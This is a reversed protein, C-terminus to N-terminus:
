YAVVFGDGQCGNERKYKWIDLSDCLSEFLLLDLPTESM